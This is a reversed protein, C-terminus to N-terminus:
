SNSPHQHVDNQIMEIAHQLVSLVAGLNEKVANPSGPLNLILTSGRIGAVGRSLMAMPTFKMGEIRMAEAIGPIQKDLVATTAEPMIDRVTLSTAGTTVILDLKDIDAWKKLVNSIVHAEDPVIEYQVVNYGHDRMLEIILNGSVDETNGQSRSDSSTLVGLTNM